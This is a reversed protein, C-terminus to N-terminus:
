MTWTNKNTEGSKGQEKKNNRTTRSKKAIITSWETKNTVRHKDKEQKNTRALGTTDNNGRDLAAKTQYNLKEKM